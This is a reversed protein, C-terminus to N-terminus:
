GLRTDGLITEMGWYEGLNGMCQTMFITGRGYIVGIKGGQM